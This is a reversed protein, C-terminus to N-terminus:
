LVPYFAMWCTVLSVLIILIRRIYDNLTYECNCKVTPFFEKYNVVALVILAFAVLYPRYPEFMTIGSVWSGGFGLTLAFLPLLCCASSLFGLALASALQLKKM